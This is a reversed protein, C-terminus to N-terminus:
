ELMGFTIADDAKLDYRTRRMMRACKAFMAVDCVVKKLSYGPRINRIGPLTVHRFRQWPGAGDVEAAEYLGRDVAQLSRIMGAYLSDIERM